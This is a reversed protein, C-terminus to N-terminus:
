DLLIRQFTLVGFTLGAPWTVIVVTLLEYKDFMLCNSWMRQIVTVHGTWCVSICIYGLTIFSGQGILIIHDIIIFWISSIKKGRWAEIFCLSDCYDAKPEVETTINSLLVEKLGRGSRNDRSSWSRGREVQARMNLLYPSATWRQIQRRQRTVIKM